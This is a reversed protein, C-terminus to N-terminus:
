RLPLQQPQARAAPAADRPGLKEPWFVGLILFADPNQHQNGTYFYTDRNLGFMREAWMQRIRELAAEESRHEDRWSRFAQQIEWDVITQRHGNCVPEDACRYVYRFRYPIRELTTRDPMLLSMQQLRAEQAADWPSDDREWTFDLLEGPRFVGLSTGDAERARRIACMSPRLLPEVYGRRETAKGAPLAQRVVRISDTNPTYSEPRPDNSAKEAAVEITAYKRFRSVFPLERFPVPFLRIWRPTAVDIGAVCEVEGRRRSVNPYAKVTVLVRLTEM